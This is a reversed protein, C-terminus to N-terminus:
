AHRVATIIHRLGSGVFTGYQGTSRRVTVLLDGPQAPHDCYSDIIGYDEGRPTCVTILNGPTFLDEDSLADISSPTPYFAHIIQPLSTLVSV